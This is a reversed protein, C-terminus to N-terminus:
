YKLTGELPLFSFYELPCDTSGFSRPELGEAVWLETVRTLSRLKETDCIGWSYFLIYSCSGGPTGPGVTFVWYMKKKQCNNTRILYEYHFSYGLHKKESIREWLSRFRHIVSLLSLSIGKSEARSDGESAIRFVAWWPKDINCNVHSISESTKWTGPM